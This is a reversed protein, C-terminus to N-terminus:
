KRPESWGFTRGLNTSRIPAFMQPPFIVASKSFNIFTRCQSTFHSIDFFIFYSVHFSYNKIKKIEVVFKIVQIVNIVIFILYQFLFPRAPIDICFTRIKFTRNFTQCIVITWFKALVKLIKDWRKEDYHIASVINFNSFNLTHFVM